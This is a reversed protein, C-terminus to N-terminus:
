KGQMGKIGRENQQQHEIEEMPHEQQLQLLRQFVEIYNNTSCYMICMHYLYTQQKHHCLVM